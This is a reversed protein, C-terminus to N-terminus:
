LRKYAQQVRDEISEVQMCEVVREESVENIKKIYQTVKHIKRRSAQREDENEAKELVLRAIPATM